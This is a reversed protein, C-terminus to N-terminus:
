KNKYSLVPDYIKIIKQKTTKLLIQERSEKVLCKSKYLKARYVLLVQLISLPRIM